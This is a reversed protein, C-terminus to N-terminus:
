ATWPERLRLVPRQQGAGSLAAYPATSFLGIQWRGAVLFVAWGIRVASLRAHSALSGMNFLSIRSFSWRVGHASLDMDVARWLRAMTRGVRWRPVVFVDFDWASLDPQAFEFRCSVEDEEYPVRSVWIYGAFEGKVEAVHCEYGARFRRDIVASPRPFHAVIADGPKARVVRTAADARLPVAAAKGVPQAYLAYPVIRCRGGSAKVLLRHLLYLAKLLVASV